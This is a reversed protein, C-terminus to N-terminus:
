RNGRLMVVLARTAPNRPFMVMKQLPQPSLRKVDTSSSELRGALVNKHGDSTLVEGYDSPCNKLPHCLGVTEYYQM